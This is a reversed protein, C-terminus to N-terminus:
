LTEKNQVIARIKENNGIITIEDNEKLNSLSKLELNDHLIRFYGRKLLEIPNLINLKSLLEETNAQFSDFKHVILIKLWNINNKLLIKQENHSAISLMKLQNIQDLTDEIKNQFLDGITNKLLLLNNLLLDLEDDYSFAVKEAAATPTIARHDSVYDCLTFDTEHGIASIVPTSMYYIIRVIREDNFSFLDEYSGGGRALVIVDYEGVDANQLAVCVDSVCYEGQVRVDIIDVDQKSGCKALTSLFDQIAAGSASTIIAIKKCFLPIEKKHDEDFLGEASLKKKLEEFKIFLEGIGFPTIEYAKISVQGGKEYFDITGRVIVNDGNNPVFGYRNCNFFVVKIQAFQDKLTFYCHNNVIKRDSVEGLIKANHLLEESQFIDNIFFNLERVTIYDRNQVM